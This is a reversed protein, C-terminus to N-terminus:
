AARVARVADHMAELEGPELRSRGYAVREFINTANAVVPSLSPLSRAAAGRCEGATLSPRDEVVGRAAMAQLLERFRARVAAPHDGRALAARFESEWDTSAASLSLTRELEAEPVLRVRRAILLTVGAAVALVVAWAAITTAGRYESLYYIARGLLESLYGIITQRVREAPSVEVQIGGYARRLSREVTADQPISTAIAEQTATEIRSLHTSAELFDKASSGELGELFRDEPIAVIMGRIDLEVPLGLIRRVEEMGVPTPKAALTRAKANAAALRRLYEVPSIRTPEALAPAAHIAVVLVLPILFVKKM